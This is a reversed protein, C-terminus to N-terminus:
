LTILRAHVPLWVQSCGTRRTYRWSLCAYSDTGGTWVPFSSTGIMGDGVVLGDLGCDVVQQALKEVEELTEGYASITIPVSM